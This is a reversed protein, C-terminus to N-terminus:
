ETTEDSEESPEIVADVFLADVDGTRRIREYRVLSDDRYDTM